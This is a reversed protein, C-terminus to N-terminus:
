RWDWPPPPHHPAQASRSSGRHGQDGPEERDGRLQGHWRGRVRTLPQWSLLFRLPRLTTACGTLVVGLEKATAQLKPSAYRPHLELQNVAPMVEAYEQMERLLAAPDTRTLIDSLGASFDGLHEAIDKSECNSVGIYKCKGAARAAELAKWTAAREAKGQAADYQAAARGRRLESLESRLDAGDPM